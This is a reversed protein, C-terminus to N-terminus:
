RKHQYSAIEIMYSLECISSAARTAQSVAALNADRFTSLSHTRGLSQVHVTVVACYLSPQAINRIMSSIHQLSVPVKM